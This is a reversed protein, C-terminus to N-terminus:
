IEVKLICLDGVLEYNTKKDILINDKEKLSIIERSNLDIVQGEGSLVFIFNLNNLTELLSQEKVKIKEISFEMNKFYEFDEIININLNKRLDIVNLAKKIHLERGRGYDHIRYTINSNQQVELLEIGEGIAHITGAPIYIFDGNKVRIKNVYNEIEGGKLIDELKNYSIEEKLGCYIYADKKANLIYWCESKGNDKEVTRAFEQTPHVQISLKNIAMINKILIPFDVYNLYRWLNKEKIDKNEINSVGEKHCCLNWDEFGWPKCKHVANLKLISNRM